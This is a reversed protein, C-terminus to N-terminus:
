LVGMATLDYMGVQAFQYTGTGAQPQLFIQAIAATAPAITEEYFIGASIPQDLRDIPRFDSIATGGSTKFICDVILAGPTTITSTKVKGTLAYRHGPVIASIAQQFFSSSSGMAATVGKQWNGQITTDGTVLSPTIGGGTLLQWSDAVGDSNSDTLFLGDALLNNADVNDAPLAPLFAPLLSQVAALFAQAMVVFGANNPHTGDNFYAALYHGNAPDVLPTYFDVLVLGQAATYRKIWSNLAVIQAPLGTVNGTNNNPPLTCLVPVAGISRVMKVMTILNSTVTALPVSQVLDNTGALIPVMNPSHPQVDTTFRAIMQDTRDGQKGANWQYNVRQGSLISAYVPWSTGRYGV